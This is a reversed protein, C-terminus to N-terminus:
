KRNEFQATNFMVTFIKTCSIDVLLINRKSDCNVKLRTAIDKPALIIM